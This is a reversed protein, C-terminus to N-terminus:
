PVNEVPEKYIKYFSCERYDAFFIVRLSGKSFTGKLKHLPKKLIVKQSGKPFSGSINMLPKVFIVGLSGEPFM